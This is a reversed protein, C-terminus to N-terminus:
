ASEKQKIPSYLECGISHEPWESNVQGLGEAFAFGACVWGKPLSCICQDVKLANRLERHTSCHYYDRLHYECNCCCQGHENLTCESVM